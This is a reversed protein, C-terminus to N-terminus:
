QCLHEYDAVKLIAENVDETYPDDKCQSTYELKSSGVPNGDALGSINVTTLANVAKSDGLGTCIDLRIQCTTGIEIDEAPTYDDVPECKEADSWSDAGPTWTNSGKGTGGAKKQGQVTVSQLVAQAKDTGENPDTLTIDVILEGAYEDINCVTMVDLSAQPGQKNPGNGNGPAALAGGSFAVSAMLAASAAIGITKKTLQKNM